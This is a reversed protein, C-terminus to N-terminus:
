ATERVRETSVWEERVRVKYLDAPKMARSGEYLLYRYLVRSLPLM